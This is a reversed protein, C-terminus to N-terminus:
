TRAQVQTLPDTPAATVVFEDANSGDFTVAFNTLNAGGINTILFMRSNNANHAVSGFDVTSAGDVLRSGAPQEVEIIPVGTM